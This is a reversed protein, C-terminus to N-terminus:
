KDISAEHLIQQAEAVRSAFAEPEKLLQGLEDIRLELLMGTIKGALHAKSGLSKQLMSYIQMAFEEKQGILSPPKEAVHRAFVWQAENIKMHLEKPNELAHQLYSIPMELLMGTLKAALSHVCEYQPGVLISYIKDGINQKEHEEILSIIESTKEQHRPLDDMVIYPDRRTKETRQVPRESKSASCKWYWPREYVVTVEGGALLRERIAVAEPNTTPWRYLHIFARQIKEGRENTKKILDVREVYHGGLRQNFTKEIFERTINDFVRPICISPSSAPITKVSSM